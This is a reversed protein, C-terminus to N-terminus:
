GYRGKRLHYIVTRKSSTDLKMTYEHESESTIRFGLRSYLAKAPNSKLVSLVVAKSSKSAEEVVHGVLTAGIGRNQWGPVVQIQIIEHVRAGACHKLLGVPQEGAYAIHASDFKYMLRELHSDQDVPLGMRLLHGNMTIARLALLFPIDAKGALRLKVDM